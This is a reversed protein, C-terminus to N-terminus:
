SKPLRSFDIDRLRPFEADRAKILPASIPWEIGLDPDNWFLGAEDGPCYSQTCKYWIENHEALSCFGHAVGAPLFLQRHNDASLEFSIHQGFTPSAPRLDVGVDFICGATVYILHGTPNAVQYHLGRVVGRASCSRNDQVFRDQIGLRAYKILSYTEIFVGRCDEYVDLELLLAGTISTKHVKM